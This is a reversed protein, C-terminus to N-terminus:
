RLMALSCYVGSYRTSAARAQLQCSSKSVACTNRLESQQSVAQGVNMNFLRCEHERSNARPCRDPHQGLDAVVLSRAVATTDHQCSTGAAEHLPHWPPAGLGAAPVRRLLGPPPRPAAPPCPPAPEGSACQALQKGAHDCGEDHEM